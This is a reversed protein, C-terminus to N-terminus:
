IALIFSDPRLCEVTWYDWLRRSKENYRWYREQVVTMMELARNQMFGDYRVSTGQATPSSKMRQSVLSEARAALHQAANLPALPFLPHIPAM